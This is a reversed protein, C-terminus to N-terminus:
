RLELAQLIAESSFQKKPLFAVAGVTRALAEYQFDYGSIMVVRLGPSVDLMRWAAEFGNMGPLQVDLIVADPKLAPLLALAEEGSAAEGVILVAPHVSLLARALQRFAAQDDVLLISCVQSLGSPEAQAL